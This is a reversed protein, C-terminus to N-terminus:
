RALCGSPSPNLLVALFDLFLLGALCTAPSLELLIAVLDLFVELSMVEHLADIPINYSSSVNFRLEM